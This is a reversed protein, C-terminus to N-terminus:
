QVVLIFTGDSEANLPDDRTGSRIKLYMAAQTLQSLLEVVAGPVMRRVVEFGTNDFLDYFTVNDISVQFSINRIYGWNAPGIIMVASGTTLDASPSLSTGATITVTVTAVGPKAM